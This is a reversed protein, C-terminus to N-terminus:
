RQELVAGTARRVCGPSEVYLVGGRQSAWSSSRKPQWHCLAVIRWRGSGACRAWAAKGNATIGYDCKVAASAPEADALAGVSLAAGACVAAVSKKITM